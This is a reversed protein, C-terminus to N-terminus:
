VHHGVAIICAETFIQDFLLILVFLIYIYGLHVRLHDYNLVRVGLVVVWLDFWALRLLEIRAEVFAKALMCGIREDTSSVGTNDLWSLLVVWLMVTILDGSLRMLLCERKTDPLILGKGLSLITLRNWARLSSRLRDRLNILVIILVHHALGRSSKVVWIQRITGNLLVNYTFIFVLEGLYIDLTAVIIRGEETTCICSDAGLFILVMAGM